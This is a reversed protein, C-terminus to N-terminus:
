HAASRVAGIYQPEHDGGRTLSIAILILVSVVGVGSYALFALGFGWGAILTSVGAVFGLMIGIILQGLIM